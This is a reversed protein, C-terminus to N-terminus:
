RQIAGVDVSNDCYYFAGRPFATAAGGCPGDLAALDSSLLLSDDWDDAGGNGDEACHRSAGGCASTDGDCLMDCSFEPSPIM